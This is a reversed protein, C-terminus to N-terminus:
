RERLNVAKPGQDGQELDFSVRAGAQLPREAAVGSQHVFLDKGAEDPTIFGFRKDENFWKVTGTPM